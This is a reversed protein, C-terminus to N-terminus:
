AHTPNELQSPMSSGRLSGQSQEFLDELSLGAFRAHKPRGLIDVADPEHRLFAMEAHASGEFKRYHAELARGLFEEDPALDTWVNSINSFSIGCARLYAATKPKGKRIADIFISGLAYSSSSDAREEIMQHIRPACLPGCDLIVKELSFKTSPDKGLDCTFWLDLLDVNDTRTATLLIKGASTELDFKLDALRQLLAINGAGAPAGAGVTNWEKKWSDLGHHAVSINLLEVSGLRMIERYVERTGATQALREALWTFRDHIFGERADASVFGNKSSKIKRFTAAAKLWSDTPKLPKQSM